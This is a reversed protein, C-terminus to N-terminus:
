VMHPRGQSVLTTKASMAELVYKWPQFVLRIEQSITAHLSELCWSLHEGRRCGIESIYIDASYSSALEESRHFCSLM